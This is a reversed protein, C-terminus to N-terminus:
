AMADEYLSATRKKFAFRLIIGKGDASNYFLKVSTANLAFSCGALPPSAATRMALRDTASPFVLQALPNAKPLKIDNAAATRGSLLVTM